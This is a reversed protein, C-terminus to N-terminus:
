LYETFGTLPRACVTNHSSLLIGMQLRGKLLVSISCTSHAPQGNTSAPMLALSYPPSEGLAKTLLLGTLQGLHSCSYSFILRAHSYIVRIYSCLQFISDTM